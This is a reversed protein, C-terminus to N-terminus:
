LDADAFEMRDWGHIACVEDSHRRFGANHMINPNDTRPETHAQYLHIQEHQMIRTLVMLSGVCRESIGIEHVGKYFRHYGATTRDRTVKFVVDHSDPLNWGKFPATECNMEYVLRLLAVTLKFKRRPKM